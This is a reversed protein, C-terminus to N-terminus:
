GQKHWKILTIILMIICIIHIIIVAYNMILIDYVISLIHAFLSCIRIKQMDKYIWKPIFACMSSIFLIITQIGSYNIFVLLYLGVFIIFLFNLKKKYKDKLYITILRILTVFCNIIGDYAQLFIYAIISLSSSLINGLLIKSKKNYKLDFSFDILSGLFSIINGLIIDM